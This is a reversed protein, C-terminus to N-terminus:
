SRIAFTRRLKDLLIVFASREARQRYKPRTEKGGQYSGCDVLAGARRTQVDYVSGTVDDPAGHFYIKM